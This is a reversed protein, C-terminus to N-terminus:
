RQGRRVHWTAPGVWWRVRRHWPVGSRLGREVDLAARWAPADAPDVLVAGGFAAEQAAGALPRAPVGALHEIRAALVDATDAADARGERLALAEAAHQWAGVVGSGRLRRRHVARALVPVALAMVLGAVLMATVALGVLDWPVQWTPTTDEDVPDDAAGTGDSGALDAPDEQVPAPALERTPAPLGTVSAADPAPDFRVWGTGALYVEAWARVDEGHVDRLTDDAAAGGPVRFGVVVRSPLGVARALVAFAGAFQETSGVQGGATPDAFLFERLRAYSSGSVADVALSRDGRVAEALNQAQDLRSRAGAVADQAYVRLDAPLRDVQLYRDVEPGGPVGARAARDADPLDVTASVRYALGAPLHGDSTAPATLVGTDVDVLAGPVTTVGADGVSPLWTGPSGSPGALEVLHVEVDVAGRVAGPALSPEVVSGLERLDLDASWGAGDFDPLAVWSLFGPHTGAVRLVTADADSQWRSVEALPHVADVPVRPPAVYARPEFAAGTVAAASALGATSVLAVLVLGTVGSARWRARHVPTARGLQPRDREAVVADGDLLLWGAVTLAVLGVGVPGRDAAGATLLLAAGYLVCAGVLPAVRAARRGLALAVALTVVTALLVVPLVLAPAAPRPSTLLRAVTDVVPGLLQGAGTTERWSGADVVPPPETTRAVSMAVVLAGGVVAVATATEPIRWRRALAVVALVVVVAGAVPLLVVPSTFAAALPLSAVLLLSAAWVTSPTTM